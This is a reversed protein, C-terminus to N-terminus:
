NIYRVSSTKSILVGVSKEIATKEIERNKNNKALNTDTFSQFIHFIYLAILILVYIDHLIGCFFKFAVLPTNLPRLSNNEDTIKM